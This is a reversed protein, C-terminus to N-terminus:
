VQSFMKMTKVSPPLIQIKVIIDLTPLNRAQIRTIAIKPDVIKHVMTETQRIKSPEQLLEKKAEKIFHPHEVLQSLFLNQTLLHNTCLSERTAPREQELDIKIEIKVIAQMGEM